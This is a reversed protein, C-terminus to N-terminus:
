GFVFYKTVFFGIIPNFIFYLIITVLPFIQFTDGIYGFVASVLLMSFYMKVFKRKTPREKFTFFSNCFFSFIVAVSFAVSNALTQSSFKELIFFVIFHIGTNVVGIIGYCIFEKYNQIKM